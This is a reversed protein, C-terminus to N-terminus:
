WRQRNWREPHAWYRANLWDPTRKYRALDYEYADLLAGASTAPGIRRLGLSLLDARAMRGPTPATNAVLLLFRAAHVDRLSALLPTAVAEPWSELLDGVVAADHRRGEGLAHPWDDPASGAFAVAHVRPPPDGLDLRATLGIATEGLALISAHPAARLWDAVLTAADAPVGTEM